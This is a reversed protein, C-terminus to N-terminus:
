KKNREDQRKKLHKLMKAYEEELDIDYHDALLVLNYLIDAMADAIEEKSETKYKNPKVGDNLLMANALEGVEEVLDIFRNKRGLHNSFGDRVKLTEEILQKLDM